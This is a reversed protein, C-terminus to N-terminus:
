LMAASECIHWIEGGDSIRVNLGRIQLPSLDLEPYDGIAHIKFICTDDTRFDIYDQPYLTLTGQSIQFELKPLAHLIRPTCSSYSMSHELVCGQAVMIQRMRRRMDNTIQAVSYHTKKFKVEIAPYEEIVVETTANTIKFTAPGTRSQFSTLTGPVCTTVFHEMTSGFILEAAARSPDAAM